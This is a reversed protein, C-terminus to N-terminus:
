ASPVTVPKKTGITALLGGIFALIMFIAVFTGGLVVGAVSSVM